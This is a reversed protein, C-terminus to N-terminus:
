NGTVASTFGGGRYSWFWCSRFMNQWFARVCACFSAIEQITISKNEQGVGESGGGM